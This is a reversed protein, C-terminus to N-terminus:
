RNLWSSLPIIAFIRKLYPKSAVGPVSVLQQYVSLTQAQPTLCVVRLESRQREDDAGYLAAEEIVQRLDKFLQM